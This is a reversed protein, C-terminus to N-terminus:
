MIKDSLESVLEPSIRNALRIRRADKIVLTGKELREGLYGVFRELVEKQNPYTIIMMALFEMEEEGVGVGEKGVIRECVPVVDALTYKWEVLARLYQKDLSSEADSM